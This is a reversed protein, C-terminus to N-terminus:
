RAENPGANSSAAGLAANVMATPRRDISWGVVKRSWFGIRCCSLKGERTPDETIDTTV